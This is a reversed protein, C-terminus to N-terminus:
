TSWSTTTTYVLQCVYSNTFRWSSLLKEGSAMLRCVNTFRLSDSFKLPSLMFFVFSLRWLNILRWVNTFRCVNTQSLFVLWLHFLLAIDYYNLGQLITSECHLIIMLSFFSKIVNCQSLSYSNFIQNCANTTSHGLIQFPVFNSLTCLVTFSPALQPKRLWFDSTYACTEKNM